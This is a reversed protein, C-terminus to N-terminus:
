RHLVWYLFFGWLLGIPLALLVAMQEWFSLDSM